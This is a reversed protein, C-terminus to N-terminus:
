AVGEETLDMINEVVESLRACEFELSDDTKVYVSTDNPKRYMSCVKNNMRFDYEYPIKNKLGMYKGTINVDNVKLEHAVYEAIEDLRMYFLMKEDM